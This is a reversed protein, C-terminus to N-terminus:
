LVTAQDLLVEREWNVTIVEQFYEPSLCGRDDGETVLSGDPCKFFMINNYLAKKVDVSILVPQSDLMDVGYVEPVRRVLRILESDEESWIGYERFSRWGQMNTCFIATSIGMQHAMGLTIRKNAANVSKISHRGHHRVLLEKVHSEPWGRTEEKFQFRQRPDEQLLNVFTSIKM